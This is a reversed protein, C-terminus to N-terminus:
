WRRQGRGDGAAQRLGGYVFSNDDIKIDRPDGKGAATRRAGVHAEEDDGRRATFNGDGIPHSAASGRFENRLVCDHDPGQAATDIATQLEAGAITM